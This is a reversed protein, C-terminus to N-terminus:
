RSRPGGTNSLVDLGAGAIRGANLAAALDAENILAGRATNILYATPKMVALTAANIIERTEPTLPCHLSVVDSARLVQALEAAGGRRTAFLVNMGFARGLDAVAQGIRGAGIIGLTLGDLEILPAEWYCFDASKAWRGERVSQGHLGTKQALELLLAFVHQAVSRTSYDPVNTVSVRRARAAAVDVVNYGTALVGVYRLRDLQSLTTATVPTKNTLLVDAERSWAVIETAPTRPHIECPGIAELTAWSLDGPNLTHGDLVVIKM